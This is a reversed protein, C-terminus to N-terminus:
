DRVLRGFSLPIGPTPYIVSVFLTKKYVEQDQDPKEGVVLSIVDGCVALTPAVIFDIFGSFLPEFRSVLNKHLKTRLKKM